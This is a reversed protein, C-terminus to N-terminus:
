EPLINEAHCRWGFCFSNLYCEGLDELVVSSMGVERPTESSITFLVDGKQVRNQREDLSIKVYGLHQPDICPNTFVNLYPLYPKGVGFDNKSKGALGAYCHGVDSLVVQNWDSKDCEDICQSLSWEFRQQQAAILRATQQIATDWTQLVGAIAKQESIPPLLIQIKKVDSTNIAPYNSGVNLKAFHRLMDTSYLYQYLYESFLASKPSLVAFGTSVVVDKTPARFIYFAQLHPRVTALLVDGHKVIKRARSPAGAFQCEASGVLKGGEVDSLSIYTFRYDGDTSEPLSHEDLACVEGLRVRRWGQPVAQSVGNMPM